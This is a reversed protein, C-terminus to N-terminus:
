FAVSYVDMLNIGQWKNPDSLNGTKPVMLGLGVHWLWYYTIDNWFDVVYKQIYRLNENDLLKLAEPLVGTVGPANDNKDKM